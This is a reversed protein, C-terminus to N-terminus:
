FSAHATFTPLPIRSTFSQGLSKLLSALCTSRGAAEDKVSGGDKQAVQLLLDAGPM